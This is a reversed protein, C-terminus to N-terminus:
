TVGLMCRMAEHAFNKGTVKSVFPLSRSARLNCEIVKAANHKALFQLNFPGTINLSLALKAAIHKIRRITAIYLMRRSYRFYRVLKPRHSWLRGTFPLAVATSGITAM